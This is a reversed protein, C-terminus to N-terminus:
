MFEDTVDIFDKYDLREKNYMTVFMRKVEEVNSIEVRYHSFEDEVVNKRIEVVYFKEDKYCQIYSIGYITEKFDLLVFNFDDGISIETEDIAELIDELTPDDNDLDETELYFFSKFKLEELNFWELALTESLTIYHIGECFEELSEIESLKLFEEYSLEGLVKDLNNSFISVKWNVDEEKFDCGVPLTPELPFVSTVGTTLVYMGIIEDAENIRYFAPTPYYVDERQKEDLFRDFLRPDVALNNMIEKSLILPFLASPIALKDYEDVKFTKLIHDNYEKLNNIHEELENLKYSEEDVIIESINIKADIRNIIEQLLEFDSKASPMSVSLTIDEKLPIENYLSIGRGINEPNYIIHYGEQEEEVEKLIYYSNHIGFALDDRVIDSINIEGKHRKGQKIVIDVAM